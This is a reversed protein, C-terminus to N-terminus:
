ISATEGVPFGFDEATKSAYEVAEIIQVAKLRLSVGAGALGTYYPFMEFSVRGTSGNGIAADKSVTNGIIDFVKPSQTWSRKDTDVHHKMKTKIVTRDTEEKTDYDVYAGWPKPALKVGQGHENRLDTMAAEYDTELTALFELNEPTPDLIISASFLGKSDFKFDPELIKPWLLEGAPTTYTNYTPKDKAM